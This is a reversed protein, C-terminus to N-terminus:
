TPPQTDDNFDKEVQVPSSRSRTTSPFSLSASRGLIRSHSDVAKLNNSSDRDDTTSQHRDDIDVQVAALLPTIASEVSQTNSKSM